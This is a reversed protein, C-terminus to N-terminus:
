HIVKILGCWFSRKKLVHGTKEGEPAAIINGWYVHLRLLQQRAKTCGILNRERKVVGMSERSLARAGRGGARASERERERERERQARRARERERGSERGSGRKERQRKCTLAREKETYVYAWM